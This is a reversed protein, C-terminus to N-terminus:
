ATLLRCVSHLALNEDFEAAWLDSTVSFNDTFRYQFAM